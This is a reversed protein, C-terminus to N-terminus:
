AFTIIGGSRELSYNLESRWEKAWKLAKGKRWM